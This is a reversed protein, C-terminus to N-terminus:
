DFVTRFNPHLKYEAPVIRLHRAIPARPDRSVPVILALNRMGVTCASNEFTFSFPNTWMRADPSAKPLSGGLIM